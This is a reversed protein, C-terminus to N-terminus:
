IYIYKKKICVYILILPSTPFVFLSEDFARFIMMIVSREVIKNIIMIAIM